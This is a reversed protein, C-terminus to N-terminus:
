GVLRLEVNAGGIDKLYQIHSKIAAWISAHRKYPINFEKCTAEVIPQISPYHMHCVGPFLHHEIQLNLGGSLHTWLLSHTSFNVSSYVQMAAWGHPVTPIGDKIEVTAFTAENVIHSVEFFVTLTWGAILQSILYLRLFNSWNYSGFLLPLVVMYLAYFLKAGWFQKVENSTMKAIPLKGIHGSILAEFDDMWVGKLVVIGYLPWLYIYQYTHFSLRKHDRHVRRLDVDNTKIDTDFININTFPHHAVVHHQKWIYSSAGILDLSMGMMFSLGPFSSYSGHNADHTISMAIQALLYGLVMAYMSSVIHNQAQYFTLYYFLSYASLLVVSKIFLQPHVRPNVKKTHFYAEVREKMTLYFPEKVTNLYEVNHLKLIEDTESKEIEGICYRDLLKWVYLPHYSNFMYTCDHGARVYILSGGPHKPVWQTVDYVKGDIVLWCDEPTSHAMVDKRSYKKLSIASNPANISDRFAVDVAM